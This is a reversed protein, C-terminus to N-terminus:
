APNKRRQWISQVVAVWFYFAVCCVNKTKGGWVSCGDHPCEGTWPFIIGGIPMRTM